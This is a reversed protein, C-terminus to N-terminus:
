VDFRAGADCSIIYIPNQALMMHKKGIKKSESVQVQVIKAELSNDEFAGIAEIASELTVATAVIRINSNFELLKEIIPRMSGKTGGIFAADFFGCSETVNELWKAANEQLVEANGIQFNRINQRTLEVAEASIDIGVVSGRYAALAMEVTVSGTGCGVDICRDNPKIALKSMVVARINSKTMPVEGRVFDEDSIGARQRSDFKPNEIIVVSLAATKVGAVEHVLAKMINESDSGLKEGIHIKLDGFGASVLEQMIEGINGGTLAFTLRNRRVADVIGGRRGHCSILEADQWALGCKAFFYSVTSIGPVLITNFECIKSECSFASAASYFGTDGSVLLVSNEANSRMIASFVGERDYIEFREATESIYSKVESHMRPAGFVVEARTICDVAEATLTREGVGIGVIYLNKQM